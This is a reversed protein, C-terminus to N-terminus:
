ARLAVSAVVCSQISAAEAQRQTKATAYNAYTADSTSRAVSVQDTSISHRQNTALTPTSPLHGSTAM